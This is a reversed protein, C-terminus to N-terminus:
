IPSEKCREGHNKFCMACKIVHGPDVKAPFPFCLLAPSNALRNFRGYNWFRSNVGGM